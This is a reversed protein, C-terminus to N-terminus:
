RAWCYQASIAEPDPRFRRLTDALQSEQIDYVFISHGIKAIPKFDRLWALCKAERPNLGVLNNVSVALIGAQPSCSLEECEIGRNACTDQGFYSLKIKKINNRHLYDALPKFDQGFDINSDLLYKYGQDPGGILENFYALYHPTIAVTSAIYWVALGTLVTYKAVGHWNVLVLQSVLVFLFPYIPLIYRIGINLRSMVAAGFMLGVPLWLFVDQKLSETIRPHLKYYCLGTLAILILFAVPTKILFAIPFYQPWGRTSYHGMLFAPHGTENHLFQYKLGVVFRDFHVVGYTLLLVCFGAAFILIANRPLAAWTEAKWFPRNPQPRYESYARLGMLLVITPILYLATFKTALGLGLFIGALWLGYNEGKCLFKWLYYVSIFCFCTVGIDTEALTTEALINPSFSALMLALYGAREGYLDRAWFFVYLCLVVGLLLMPLRAWFVLQDANSNSEFMFQRAFLLQKSRDGWLSSDTPLTPKLLLLPTAALLKALPPHQTNMWYNFTKLYSYGAPIYIVEDCTVSQV